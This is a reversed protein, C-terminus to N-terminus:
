IHATAKALLALFVGRSLGIVFGGLLWPWAPLLFVRLFIGWRSLGQLRAADITERSVKRFGMIACLYFAPLAWMLDMAVIGSPAAEPALGIIGYVFLPVRFTVVAPVALPMLFLLDLTTRLGRPGAFRVRVALTSILFAVFASVLAALLSIWLPEM